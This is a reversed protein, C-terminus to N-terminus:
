SAVGRVQALVASRVGETDLDTPLEIGPALERALAAHAHPLGGLGCRRLEDALSERGPVAARIAAYERNAGAHSAALGSGAHMAHHADLGGGPPVNLHYMTTAVGLAARVRERNPGDSEDIDALAPLVSADFFRLNWTIPAIEGPTSIEVGSMPPLADTTAVLHLNATGVAAVTFGPHKVLPLKAVEGPPLDAVAGLYSAHTAHVYEALAHRLADPGTREPASSSVTRFRLLM